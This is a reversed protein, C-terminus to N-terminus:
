RDMTVVMCWGMVMNWWKDSFTVKSTKDKQCIESLMRIFGDWATTSQSFCQSKKPPPIGWIIFFLPTDRYTKTESIIM